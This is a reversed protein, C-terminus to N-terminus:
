DRLSVDICDYTTTMSTKSAAMTMAMTRTIAALIVITRDLKPFLRLQRVHRGVRKSQLIYVDRSSPHQATDGIISGLERRSRTGVMQRSEAQPLQGSDLGPNVMNEHDVFSRLSRADSQVLARHHRAGAHQWELLCGPSHTTQAADPEDECLSGEPHTSAELLTDYVLTQTNRRVHLM